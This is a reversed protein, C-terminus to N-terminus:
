VRHAVLGDELRQLDGVNGFTGIAEDFQRQAAAAGIVHRDDDGVDHVVVVALGLRNEGTRYGTFVVM